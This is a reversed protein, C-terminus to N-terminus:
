DVPPLSEDAKVYDLGVRLTTRNHVGFSSDDDFNLFSNSRVFTEYMEGKGGQCEPLLRSEVGEQDVYIFKDSVYTCRGEPYVYEGEGFTIVVPHSHVGSCEGIYDIQDFVIPVPGGQKVVHVYDKFQDISSHTKVQPSEDPYLIETM